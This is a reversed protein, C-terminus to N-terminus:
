PALTSLSASATQADKLIEHRQQAQAVLKRLKGEINGDGIHEDQLVGDSDITFTHPISAVAFLQALTGDFGGDRYQEWPMDNHSIFDKWKQEDSDLSVSLVVLPQGEFQKAIRRVHPLAERCPGCWTAWFDILVVKDRLEDMSVRKGDLTRVSFPPALRARVLEPRELYRSVRDHDISHAALKPLLMAFVKKAAEDQQQNALCMGQVYLASPDAPHIALATEAEHQGDAYCEPKKKIKGMAMLVQAREVHAKAQADPTTAIAILERAAEDALKLDGTALALNMVKHACAACRNGDQKDAKRFDDLAFAYRRHQELDLAEQYSKQAKPDVPGAEADPKRAEVTSPSPASPSPTQGVSPLALLSLTAAAHLFISRFSVQM